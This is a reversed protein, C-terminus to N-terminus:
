AVPKSSCVERYPKSGEAPDAAPLLVGDSLLKMMQAAVNSTGNRSHLADSLQKPMSAGCVSFPRNGFSYCLGMDEQAPYYSLWHFCMEDATAPGSRTMNRRSTSDFTCQLTLTDGPLLTRAESNIPTNGQFEYDYSRLQGVPSLETGNRFRRTIISKGLGHMHFFGDLLTLPGKFKATCESPCVSVNSRLVAQGPPINLVPQQLTILGIDHPRLVDTYYVRLGSGKDKQGTLGEPNNYHLELALYQSGPTGMPLGASQPADYATTNPVVLMYFQECQMDHKFRDFPGLSKMAKVAAAAKADCSYAVGHHLLQSNTIPEYRLIHYKKNSPLKFYQVFYTTTHEPITVPYTLELVKVGAPLGAAAGGAAAAVNSSTAAPGSAATVSLPEKKQQQQQQQLPQDLFSVLSSGRNVTGHYGWSAGYAWLVHIPTSPLPLDQADCPAVHRQWAAILGSNSTSSVGLLKTDQQKDAVPRVFGPAYADVLRWGPAAATGSTTANLIFMDAGKMSGLESLGVGLYATKPPLQAQIAFTAIDGKVGYRLVIADSLQVCGQLQEPQLRLQATLAAQASACTPLAAANAYGQLLFLLLSVALLHPM